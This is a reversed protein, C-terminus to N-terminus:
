FVGKKIDRKQDREKIAHRKDHQKKGKGPVIVVKIFRGGTLMKIPIITFGRDKKEQLTAIQKKNLLLKRVRTDVTKANSVGKENNKISFSANNLWVENNRITVFSGKLQVLGDRAARVEPGTLSIGAIFDDDLFYDFTARRNLIAKTQNGKKM